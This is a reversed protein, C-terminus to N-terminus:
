VPNLFVIVIFSFMTLDSKMFMLFDQEDFPVTSPFFFFLDVPLDYILPSTQLVRIQCLVSTWFVDMM